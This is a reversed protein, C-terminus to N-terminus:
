SKLADTDSTGGHGSRADSSEIELDESSLTFTYGGEVIESRTAHSTLSALPGKADSGSTSVLRRVLRPM